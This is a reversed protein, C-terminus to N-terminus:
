DLPYSRILLLLPQPLIPSVLGTARQRCKISCNPKVFKMVVELGDGMYAIRLAQKPSLSLNSLAALVSEHTKSTEEDRLLRLLQPLLNRCSSILERAQDSYLAQHNLSYQTLIQCWLIFPEM